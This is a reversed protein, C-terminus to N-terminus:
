LYDQKVFNIFRSGDNLPHYLDSSAAIAISLKAFYFADRILGKSLRNAISMVREEKNAWLSV